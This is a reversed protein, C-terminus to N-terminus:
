DVLEQEQGLKKPPPGGPPLCEAVRGPGTNAIVEGARVQERWWPDIARSIGLLYLSVRDLTEDDLAEGSILRDVDEGDIGLAERHRAIDAAHLWYRADESLILSSTREFGAAAALREGFESGEKIVHHAMEVGRAQLGDLLTHHSAALLGISTAEEPAVLVGTLGATADSVSTAIAMASVTRAGIGWPPWPRRRVALAVLASGEELTPRLLEDYVYGLDIRRLFARVPVEFATDAVEYCDIEFEELRDNGSM